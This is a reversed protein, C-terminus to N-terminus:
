ILSKNFAIMKLATLACEEGKHGHAGGIREKAQEINDVTLIGFIVPVPLSLNLQTIGWTVSQCVYDFHPTDGRIVCGFAIIADPKKPTEKVSEFYRRCAFPLEICGPVKIRTIETIKHTLLTKECGKVLEDVIEHNWEAHVLVIGADGIDSIGSLKFLAQNHKSM